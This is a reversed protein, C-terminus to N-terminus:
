ISSSPSPINKATCTLKDCYNFVVPNLGWQTSQLLVLLQVALRLCLVTATCLVVMLFVLCERLTFTRTFVNHVQCSAVAVKGSHFFGTGM